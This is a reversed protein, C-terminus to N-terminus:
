AEKKVYSKKIVGTIGLQNLREHLMASKQIFIDTNKGSVDMQLQWQGDVRALRADLMLSGDLKITFADNKMMVMPQYKQEMYSELSKTLYKVTEAKATEAVQQSEKIILMSGSLISNTNNDDHKHESDSNKQEKTLVKELAEKKSTLETSLEVKKDDKIDVKVDHLGKVIKKIDKIDVPDATKVLQQMLINASSTPVQLTNQSSINQIIDVPVNSVAKVDADIPKTSIPTNKTSDQNLLTKAAMALLMKNPDLTASTGAPSLYLGKTKDDSPVLVQSLLQNVVDQKEKPSISSLASADGTMITSEPAIFAGLVDGFNANKESSTETPINKSVNPAFLHGMSVIANNSM